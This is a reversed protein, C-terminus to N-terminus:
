TREMTAKDPALQCGLKRLSHTNWFERGKILMFIRDIGSISTPNRLDSPNGSVVVRYVGCRIGPM